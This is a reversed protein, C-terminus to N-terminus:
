MCWSPKLQLWISFPVWSSRVAKTGMCFEPWILKTSICLCCLQAHSPGLAQQILSCNKKKMGQSCEVTQLIARVRMGETNRLILLLITFHQGRSISSLNWVCSRFLIMGTFIELTYTLPFRLNVGLQLDGPLQHTLSFLSDSNRPTHDSTCHGSISTHDQAETCM